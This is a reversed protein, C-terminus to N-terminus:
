AVIEMRLGREDIQPEGLPLTLALGNAIRYATVLCAAADVIDDRGVAAGGAGEARSYLRVLQEHVARPDFDPLVPRLLALRDSAGPCVAGRCAACNRKSHFLGHGAEGGGKLTAFTVEPHAERVWVRTEDTLPQQHAPEIAADVERIKPIINYAQQSLGKGRGRAEMELDCAERYTTAQLTARCPASFVSARRRGGLFDRAAGDARRVGDDRPAGTPLGIPIDVAILARVGALADLLARFSPAIGFELSGLAADSTAVVWGSRCGDVGILRLGGRGDATDPAM